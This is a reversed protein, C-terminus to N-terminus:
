YAYATDIMTVATLVDVGKVSCECEILGANLQAGHRNSNTSPVCVSGILVLLLAGLLALLVSTCQLPVVLSLSIKIDARERIILDGKIVQTEPWIPFGDPDLPLEAVNITQALAYSSLIGPLLMLKMM